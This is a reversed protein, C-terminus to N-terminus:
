RREISLNAAARDWTATTIGALKLDRKLVRGVASRPMDDVIEIYRPIAFYPLENASWLCLEEPTLAAGPRLVVVVKLEDESLQSAVGFAAIDLVAPHKMFVQEVEISSINEGGRRLYDDKRDVFFLYGDADVIGIDGTHYWFNRMAKTMASANKWYGSFMLGPRKPRVVIEGPEGHPVECDFDDFIRVDFNDTNIKGASGPKPEIGPANTICSTMETQGYGRAWLGIGFRDRMGDIVSQQAPVAMLLRIRVPLEPSPKQPSNVILPAMSGLLTVITAGESQVSPWFRSVSFRRAFFARGGVVMTGVMAFQVANVHFLPLPTWLVDEPVRQLERNNIRAKQVLYQHSIMCGKSPGTTGGTYLVMSLEEPRPENTEFADSGAILEAYDIIGSTSSTEPISGVAVVRPKVTLRDQIRDLRELLDGRILVVSAESDNLPHALFEGKNAANIPVAVAALKALALYTTVAEVQNELIFAVRDARRVGIRNLGASLQNVRADLERATWPVGEEFDIFPGDPDSQLRGNWISLLTEDGKWTPKDWGNSIV